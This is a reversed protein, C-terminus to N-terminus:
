LLRYLHITIYEYYFKVIFFSLPFGRGRMFSPDPPNLTDFVSEQKKHPTKVTKPSSTKSM